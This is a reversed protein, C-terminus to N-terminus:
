KLSGQMARLQKLYLRANKETIKGEVAAQYAKGIVGPEEDKRFHPQVLQLAKHEKDEGPKRASHVLIAQLAWEAREQVKEQMLRANSKEEIRKEIVKALHPLASPHGIYGLAEAARFRVQFHEHEDKLAKVLAPVASPHRIQGLEGAADWRREGQRSKALRAVYKRVIRPMGEKSERGPM